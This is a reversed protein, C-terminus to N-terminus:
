TLIYIASALSCPFIRICIRHNFHSKCKYEKGFHHHDVPRIVKLIISIYWKIRFLNDVNKYM